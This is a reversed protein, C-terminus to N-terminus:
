IVGPIYDYLLVPVADAAAIPGRIGVFSYICELVGFPWKQVYSRPSEGTKLARLLSAKNLRSYGPIGRRRCEAQLEKVTWSDDVAGM